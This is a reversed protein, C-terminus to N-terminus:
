RPSGPHHSLPVPVPCFPLHHSGPGPWLVPPHGALIRRKTRYRPEITEAEGTISGKGQAEDESKDTKEDRIKTKLKKTGSTKTGTVNTVAQTGTVAKKEQLEGTGSGAENNESKGGLETIDIMAIHFVCADEHKEVLLGNFLIWHCSGDKTHCRVMSRAFSGEEKSCVTMIDTLLLFTDEEFVLSMADKQLMVECEERTYGSYRYLYDNYYIVRLSDEIHKPNVEIIAIGNPITDLIDYTKRQSLEDNKLM